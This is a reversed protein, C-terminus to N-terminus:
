IHSENATFTARGDEEVILGRFGERLVPEYDLQAETNFISIWSLKDKGINVTRHAYFPPSFVVAGPILPAFLVPKERNKHQMVSVGYGRLFIYVESMEPPKHFHGRTLFFENGIKGPFMETIACGMSNFSFYYIRYVFKEKDARRYAEKDHFFGDMDKLRREEVKSPNIMLSVGLNVSSVNLKCIVGREISELLKEALEDSVIPILDQFMDENMM